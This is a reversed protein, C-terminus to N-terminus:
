PIVVITENSNVSEHGQADVARTVYFYMAGSEVATDTFSLQRVLATNIRLYSSGHVSSRYVNYGAVLSTSATWRLLVTHSTASSQRTFTHSLSAGLWHWQSVVLSVALLAVALQLKM